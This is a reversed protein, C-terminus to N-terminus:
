LNTQKESQSVHDYLLLLVAHKCLKAYPLLVEMVLRRELPVLTPKMEDVLPPALQLVASFNAPGIVSLQSGSVVRPKM